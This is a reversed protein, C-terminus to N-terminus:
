VEEFNIAGVMLDPRGAALMSLVPDVAYQVKWINPVPDAVDNDKYTAIFLTKIEENFRRHETFQVHTIFVNDPYNLDVVAKITLFESLLTGLRNRAKFRNINQNTITSNPFLPLIYLDTVDDPDFMKWENHSANVKNAGATNIWYSGVESWAGASFARWRWWRKTDNTGTDTFSHISASVTTDIMLTGSFDPTESVQIQYSTVHLVSAWDLVISTTIFYIAHSLAFILPAQSAGYQFAGYQSAAPRYSTSAM